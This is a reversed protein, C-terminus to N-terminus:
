EERGMSGARVISWACFTLLGGLVSCAFIPLAFDGTKPVKSAPPNESPPNEVPPAQKFFVAQAEDAIDAHSTLEVEDSALTEFAVVKKEALGSADLSFVVNAEGESSEPIFTTTAEVTKGDRGMLLGADSGDAGKLHLTGTLTYQKGAILNRYSVTDTLELPLTDGSVEIEKSGEPGTLTTAIAPVHISQGEDSLDAHSGIRVGARYLEEFAVLTRGALSSADVEFELEATTDPEDSKVAVTSEAIAGEDSGDDAVLHLSGRIEYDAGPEINTIEVTDIVRQSPKAAIDHDGTEAGTATTALAPFSVTQAEDEIDAHVAYVVGNRSLEEFAVVDRGALHLGSFEFSLRVQGSSKEPTIEAFAQVPEGAGDLAPGADAGGDERLHLTGAVTYTRGPELNVYSVTDVLVITEASADSEHAADGALETSIKPVRVTQAEDSADAHESLLDDGDYVREYAVLRHGGLSTADVSFVVRQEGSTLQPILETSSEAVAGLDRGNEDFDHLEGVLRYAHGRELGEYRMADVLEITAAPCTKEGDGYVLTTSIAPQKDDFTGLQYNKADRSVTVTANVLRHGANADCRLEELMYTDYPLAGRGDDANDGGFWIGCARLKSSDVTKGDASLAADASNTDKSHPIDASDFCGNEDTVLLHSEGTTKSTLKFAVGAMRRQTDEDAKVFSLDGRVAHEPVIPANYTEVKAATGASEIKVLRPTTDLVYGVPAKTERVVVTGLPLERDLNATGDGVTTVTFTQTPSKPLADLEHFGSYYDIRFEAGAMTGAGKASAKGSEADVKRVAVGVSCTQPEDSVDVAKTAGAPIEVRRVETDLAFGPAPQDERLYYTGYTIGDARASGNKDCNLTLVLNKCGEDSYLGYVANLSYCANGASVAAKSSSKHVEIGGTLPEAWFRALQQRDDTKSYLLGHGIWGARKEKVFAVVDSGHSHFRDPVYGMWSLMGDLDGQAREYAWTFCQAVILADDGGLKEYAYKQILACDTVNQQTWTMYVYPGHNEADTCHTTAGVLEVVRAEGSARDFGAEICLLTEGSAQDYHHGFGDFYRGKADIERDTAVTAVDGISTAFATEAAPSCATLIGMLQSVVLTLCAWAAALKRRWSSATSPKATRATGQRRKGHKRFDM